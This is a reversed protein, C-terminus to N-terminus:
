LLTHVFEELSLNNLHNQRHPPHVDSLRGKVKGARYPTKGASYPCGGGEDGWVGTLDQMDELDSLNLIM